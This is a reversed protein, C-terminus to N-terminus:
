QSDLDDATEAIPRAILLSSFTSFTSFTCINVHGTPIVKSRSYSRYSECLEHAYHEHACLEHHKHACM